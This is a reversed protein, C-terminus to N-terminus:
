GVLKLLWSAFGSTRPPQRVMSDGGPCELCRAQIAPGALLRDAEAMARMLMAKPRGALRAFADGGAQDEDDDGGRALSALLRDGFDPKQELWVAKAKGPDLKARRAAERVADDLGGFADVLGLQRATGGDWIHGQAIRDVQEPRMHRAAGVVGLFRRYTSDIGTQLL